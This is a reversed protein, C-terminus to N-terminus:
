HTVPFIMQVKEDNLLFCVGNNISHTLFVVVYVWGTKKKLRTRKKYFFVFASHSHTFLLNM